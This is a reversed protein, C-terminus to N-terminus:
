HFQLHRYFNFQFYWTPDPDEDFHITPEPDTGSRNRIRMLMRDEISTGNAKKRIGYKNFEM